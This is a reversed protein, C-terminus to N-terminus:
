LPQSALILRSFYYICHLEQLLLASIKTLFAIVSNM